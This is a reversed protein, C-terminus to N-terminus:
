INQLFPLCYLYSPNRKPCKLDPETLLPLPECVGHREFETFLNGHTLEHITYERRIKSFYSM